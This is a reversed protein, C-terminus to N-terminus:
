FLRCRFPLQAYIAKQLQEYALEETKDAELKVQASISLLQVFFVWSKIHCFQM